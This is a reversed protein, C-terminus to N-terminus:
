QGGRRRLMDEITHFNAALALGLPTAGSLSKANVDAGKDILYEAIETRRYLVATHLPTTGSKTRSNIDAGHQLLLSVLPLEGKMVAYHLASAGAGTDKAEVDMGQEIMRVAAPYEGKAIAAQLTQTAAEGSSSAPAPAAPAAPITGEAPAREGFVSKFFGRVAGGVGDIMREPLSPEAAPAQQAHAAPAAVLALTLLAAIWPRSRMGPGGKRLLIAM